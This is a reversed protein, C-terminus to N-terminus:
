HYRHEKYVKQEEDIMDIANVLDGEAAQAYVMLREPGGDVVDGFGLDQLHKACNRAKLLSSDIPREETNTKTPPFSGPMSLCPSLDRMRNSSATTARDSAPLSPPAPAPRSSLFDTWPMRGNGDYNISYPRRSSTTYKNNLGAVTASRRLGDTNGMSAEFQAAGADRGTMRNFFNGSSESPFPCFTTPSTDGPLLIHGPMGQSPNEYCSVTTPPPGTLSALGPVLSASGRQLRHKANSAPIGYSLPASQSPQLPEMSPLPPFRPAFPHDTGTLAESSQDYSPAVNQGRTEKGTPAEIPANAISAGAPISSDWGVYYPGSSTLLNRRLLGLRYGAELASERPKHRFEEQPMSAHAKSPLAPAASHDSASTNGESSHIPTPGHYRLSSTRGPECTSSAQKRPSVSEEEQPLRCDASTPQAGSQLHSSLLSDAITKSSGQLNDGSDGINETHPQIKKETAHSAEQASCAISKLCLDFKSLADKLGNELTQTVQQALQSNESTSTQLQLETVVRAVEDVSLKISQSIQKSSSSKPSPGENRSELYTTYGCPETAESCNNRRLAKASAGAEMGKDFASNFVQLLNPAGTKCNKEATSRVLSPTTNKFHFALPQDNASSRIKKTDQDPLEISSKAHRV